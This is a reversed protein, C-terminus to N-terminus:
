KVTGDRCMFHFLARLTGQHADHRGVSPWLGVWFLIVAAVLLFGIIDTCNLVGTSTAAGIQGPRSIRKLIIQLMQTTGYHELKMQATHERLDAMTVM